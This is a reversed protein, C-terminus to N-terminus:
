CPPVCLNVSHMRNSCVYSPHFKGVKLQRLIHKSKQFKWAKSLKKFFVKQQSSVLSQSSVTHCKFFGLQCLTSLYSSMRATYTITCNLDAQILQIVIHQLKRKGLKYEPQIGGSIGRGANGGRPCSSSHDLEEPHRSLKGQTLSLQMKCDTKGQTQKRTFITQTGCVCFEVVWFGGSTTSYCSWEFVALGIAADSGRKQGIVTMWGGIIWGSSKRSHLAPKSESPIVRRGNDACSRECRCVAVIRIWALSHAQKEGMLEDAAEAQLRCHFAVSRSPALVNCTYCRTGAGYM